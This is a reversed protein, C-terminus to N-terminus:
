WSKPGSAVGRVNPAPSSITNAGPASTTASVHCAAGFLEIEDIAGGGQQRGLLAVGEQTSNGGPEFTVCWGCFFDRAGHAEDKLRSVADGNPTM